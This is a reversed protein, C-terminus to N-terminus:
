LSSTFFSPTQGLQRQLRKEGFEVVFRLAIDNRVGELRSSGAKRPSPPDRL